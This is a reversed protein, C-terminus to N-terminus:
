NKTRGAPRAAAPQTLTDGLVPSSGEGSAATDSQGSLARPIRPTTLSRPQYNPFNMTDTRRLGVLREVGWPPPAPRPTPPDEVGFVEKLDALTVLDGSKQKKDLADPPTEVSVPSEEPKQSTTMSFKGGMSKALEILAYNYPSVELTYTRMGETWGQNAQLTTNNRAVVRSNRALLATRSDPIGLSDKPMLCYIDAVDGVRAMADKSDIQLIVGRKGPALVESVAPPWQHPELMDEYIPEEARISVGKRTVRGLPQNGKLPPSPRGKTIRDYEQQSVQITKIHQSKIMFQDYINTAAVALPVTVPAAVPQPKPRDLVFTKFLWAFILAFIIALAVGFVTNAGVAARRPARRPPRLSSSANM